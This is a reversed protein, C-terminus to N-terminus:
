KKLYLLVLMQNAEGTFNEAIEVIRDRIEPQSVRLNRLCENDRWELTEEFSVTTIYFDSGVQFKDFYVPEIGFIDNEISPRKGDGKYCPNRVPISFSARTEKDYGIIFPKGFSYGNSFIYGPTNYVVWLYTKQAMLERTVQYNENKFLDTTLPNNKIAFKTVPEAKQGADVQYLANELQDFFTIGAPGDVMQCQSMGQLAPDTLPIVANLPELDTTYFQIRKYNDVMFRPKRLHVAFTQSNTFCIDEIIRSPSGKPLTVAKLLSGDPGYSILKGEFDSAIICKEDPSMAVANLLAYEGPGNGQRGIQRLFKGESSFLLIIGPSKDGVMIYKAGVHAWYVSRIYAGRVGELEIMEAHDILQSLKINQKTQLAKDVDITITNQGLCVPISSLLSLLLVAVSVLIKM